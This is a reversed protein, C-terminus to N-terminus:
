RQEDRMQLRGFQPFGASGQQVEAVSSSTPQYAYTHQKQLFLPITPFLLALAIHNNIPTKPPSDTPLSISITPHKSPANSQHANITISPFSDPTTAAASTSNASDSSSSTSGAASSRGSETGSTVNPSLSSGNNSMSMNSGKSRLTGVESGKGDSRGPFSLDEEVVEFAAGPKMVCTIEEFLDDWKDEPVGRAIRKVHVFDFSENAFPLGELSHSNLLGLVPTPSSLDPQLSVINLGIVKCGKWYKAAKIVWVGNGCGVDLIRKLPGQACLQPIVIFGVRM